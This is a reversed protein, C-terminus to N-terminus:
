FEALLFVFLIVITVAVASGVIRKLKRERRPDLPEVPANTIADATRRRAAAILTLVLVILYIAATVFFLLWWLSDIRHAQDGAPNLASQEGSCGCLIVQLGILAATKLFSSLRMVSRM